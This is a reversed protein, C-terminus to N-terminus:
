ARQECLEGAQARHWLIVRPIESDGLSVKAARPRWADACAKGEAHLAKEWEAM